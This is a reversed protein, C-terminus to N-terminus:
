DRDSYNLALPSPRSSSSLRSLLWISFIFRRGFGVSNYKAISIKYNTLSGCYCETHEGTLEGLACLIRTYRVLLSSTGYIYIRVVCCMRCALRTYKYKSLRPISFHCHKQNIDTFEIAASNLEIWQTFQDSVNLIYMNTLTISPSTTTTSTCNRRVM